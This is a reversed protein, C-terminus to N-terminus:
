VSSLVGGHSLLYAHCPIVCLTPDSLFIPACPAYVWNDHGLPYVVGRRDQLPHNSGRPPYLYM